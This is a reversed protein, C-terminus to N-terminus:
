QVMGQNIENGAADVRITGACRSKAKPVERKIYADMDDAHPTCFDLEVMEKTVEAILRLRHTAKAECGKESCRLM